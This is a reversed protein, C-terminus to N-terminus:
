LAVSKATTYGLEKARKEALPTYGKRDEGNRGTRKVQYRYDDLKLTATAAATKEYVTLDSTQWVHGDPINNLAERRADKCNMELWKYLIDYATVQVTDSTNNSGASMEAACFAAIDANLAAAHESVKLILQNADM